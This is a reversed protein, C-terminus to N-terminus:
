RGSLSVLESMKFLPKMELSIARMKDIGGAERDIVCVANKVEAGLVRLDKVSKIVQGGSTIVDEVIVLKKRQIEPGEALKKTGYEKASKRVFIAPKGTKYSLAVAIPIGGTELGALYDFRNPLLKIMQDAIEFLLKPDSEFLYKDFYRDSIVGSRLKFRGKLLSTSYIRLGLEDRNM